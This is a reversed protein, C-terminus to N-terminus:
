FAGKLDFVKQIVYVSEFRISLHLMPETQSCLFKSRKRNKQESSQMLESLLLHSNSSQERGCSM